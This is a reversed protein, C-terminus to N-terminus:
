IKLLNICSEFFTLRNNFYFCFEKLFLARNETKIGKRRKIELKLENYFSEISQIKVGTEFDIFEYKHCVTGHTFDYSSLSSYSKHEDTRIISNAAVQERIVPIM